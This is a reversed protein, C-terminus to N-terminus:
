DENDEHDDDDEDEVSEGDEKERIMPAEVCRRAVEVEEKNTLKKDDDFSTNFDRLSAEFEPAVDDAAHAISLMVSTRMWRGWTAFPKGSLLSINKEWGAVRRDRCVIVTILFHYYLFRAAPRSDNMFKLESGDLDGLTKGPYLVKKRADDMTVHVKWRKLPSENRDVPILVFQHNDM